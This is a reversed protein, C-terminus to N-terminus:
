GFEAHCEQNQSGGDKDDRQAHQEGLRSFHNTVLGDPMGAAHQIGSHLLKVPMEQSDLRSGIGVQPLYLLHKCGVRQQIEGVTDHTEIGM